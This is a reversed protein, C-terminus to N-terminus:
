IKNNWHAFWADKQFENWCITIREFTFWFESFGNNDGTIKCFFNNDDADETEVSLVSMGEVIENFDVMRVVAISSGQKKINSKDYVFSNIIKFNEFVLKAQGTSKPIQFENLPHDKLIDIHDFRFELVQSDMTADKIECDHLGINEFTNASVYKYDM